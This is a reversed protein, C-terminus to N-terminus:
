SIIKFDNIRFVVDGDPSVRATSNTVLLQRDPPLNQFLVLAASGWAEFNLVEVDIKKPLDKTTKRKNEVALTLSVREKNNDDLQFTKNLVRGLFKCDNM